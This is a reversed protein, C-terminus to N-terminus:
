ELAPGDKVVKFEGSGAATVVQGPALVGLGGTGVGSLYATGLVAGASDRLEVAGTHAGPSKPTFTASETCTQGIATFSAGSCSGGADAFDLGAMGATLVQVSSVTGPATSVVTVTIAASTTGVPVWSPFTLPPVGPQAFGSMAFGVFAGMTTIWLRSGNRWSRRSGPQLFVSAFHVMLSFTRNM